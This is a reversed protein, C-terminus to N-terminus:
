EIIDNLTETHAVTKSVNESLVQFSYKAIDIAEQENEIRQGNIIVYNSQYEPTASKEPASKRPASVYHQRVQRKLRGRKPLIKDMMEDGSIEAPSDTIISDRVTKLSDQTHVAVIENGNGFDNKQKLIETKSLDDQEEIQNKNFITFFIGLSVLLVVSAAMWFFKPFTASNREKQLPIIKEQNEAKALFDDFDWNMKESKLDNFIESYKKDTHDNKMTTDKQWSNVFKKLKIKNSPVDLM